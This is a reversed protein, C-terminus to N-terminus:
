RLRHLGGRQPPQRRAGERPGCLHPGAVAPSWCTRIMASPDLRHPMWVVNASRQLQGACGKRGSASL